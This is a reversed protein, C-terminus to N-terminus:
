VTPGRDLTTSSRHSALKLFHIRDETLWADTHTEEALACAAALAEDHTPCTVHPAHPVISIHREVVALRKTILVDGPKPIM